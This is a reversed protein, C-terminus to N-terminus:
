RSRRKIWFLSWRLKFVFWESFLLKDELPFDDRACMRQFGIWVSFNWAAHALVTLLLSQTGIAIIGYLAGQFFHRYTRHVIAIWNKSSWTVSLADHPTNHMAAFLLASLIVGVIGATGFSSFLLILPLRFVLEEGAPHGLVMALFRSYYWVKMKEENALVHKPLRKEKGHLFISTGFFLLVCCASEMM